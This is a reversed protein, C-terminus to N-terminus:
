LFGLADDDILFLHHLDRLHHRAIGKATSVKQAAGHALLDGFLHGLLARFEFLARHLVPDVLFLGTFDKVQKLLEGVVPEVFGVRRGIRHDAILSGPELGIVRDLEHGTHHIAIDVQGVLQRYIKLLHFLPQTQIPGPGADVVGLGREVHPIAHQV